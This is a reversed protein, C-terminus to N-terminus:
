RTDPLTEQLRKRVYRYQKQVSVPWLSNIVEDTLMKKVNEVSFLRIITYWPLGELMKAFLKERNYHGAQEIEGDLLREIEIVPISYDWMLTKLIKNREEKNM